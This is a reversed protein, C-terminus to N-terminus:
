RSCNHRHRTRHPQLQALERDSEEIDVSREDIAIRLRARTANRTRPHALRDPRKGIGTPNGDDRRSTGHGPENLQEIQQRETTAHAQVARIDLEVTLNDGVSAEIPNRQLM